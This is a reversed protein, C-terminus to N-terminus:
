PSFADPTPAEAAQHTHNSTISYALLLLGYQKV